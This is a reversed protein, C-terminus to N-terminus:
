ATSSAICAAPTRPWMAASPAPSRPHLIPPTICGHPAAAESIALNRVGPQVVARRAHADIAIIRRLRAVSLVVGFRHPQAGGSLGTGAGRAVVPVEQAACIRLIDVVQAETEPLVVVLPLQRLAAMGDCEYPRLDEPDHLVSAAPLVGLLAQVLRRVDVRSFDREVRGFGPIELKEGM